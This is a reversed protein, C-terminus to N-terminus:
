PQRGMLQQFEYDDFVDWIESISSLDVSLTELGCRALREKIFAFIPPTVAKAPKGLIRARGSYVMSLFDKNDSPVKRDAFKKSFEPMLRLAHYPVSEPILQASRWNGNEQLLLLYDLVVARRSPRLWDSMTKRQGPDAFHDRLENLLFTPKHHSECFDAIVRIAARQEVTPAFLTFDLKM